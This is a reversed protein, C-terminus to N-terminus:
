LLCNITTVVQYSGLSENYHGQLAGSEVEVLVPSGHPASDCMVRVLGGSLVIAVAARRLVTPFMVGLRKLVPRILGM